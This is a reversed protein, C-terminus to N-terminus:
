FIEEAGEMDQAPVEVFDEPINESVDAYDNDNIDAYDDDASVDNINDQADKIIDDLLPNVQEMLDNVFETEFREPDEYYLMAESDYAFGTDYDPTYGTKDYANGESVDPECTWSNVAELDGSSRAGLKEDFNQKFGDMEFPNLGNDQHIAVGETVINLSDLLTGANGGEDVAENFATTVAENQMQEPINEIARRMDDSDGSESNIIDKLDNIDERYQEQESLDQTFDTMSDVTEDKDKGNDSTDADSMTDARRETEADIKDQVAEASDENEKENDAEDDEEATDPKEEETEMEDAEAAAGVDNKEDETEGSDTKDTDPNDDTEQKEMNDTETRDTEPIEKGTKDKDPNENDTMDQQETEGNEAAEDTVDNNGGYEDKEEDATSKDDTNTLTDTDEKEVSDSINDNISDNIIDKNKSDETELDATDETIDKNEGYGNKEEDATSKDDTDTLTDTNEKEVSDSMTDNTSDDNSGDKEDTEANEVDNENDTEAADKENEKDKDASDTADSDTSDKENETQSNDADDKEQEYIGYIDDPIFDSDTENVNKEVGDATENDTRDKEDEPKEVADETKEKGIFDEIATLINGIVRYAVENFVNTNLMDMAAIVIDAAYIKRDMLVQEERTLNGYPRFGPTVEGINYGLKKADILRSLEMAKTSFFRRGVNRYQTIQNDLKESLKDFHEKRKEMETPEKEEAVDENDTSSEAGSETDTADTEKEEKEVLDLRDAMGDRIVTALELEDKKYESLEIKEGDKDTGMYAEYEKFGDKYHELIYYKVPYFLNIDGQMTGDSQGMVMASSALIDEQKEETCYAAKLIETYINQVNKSDRGIEITGGEPNIYRLGTENRLVDMKNERYETSIKEVSSENSKEISDNLVSKFEDSKSLVSVGKLDDRLESMKGEVATFRDKDLEDKLCHTVGLSDIMNNIRPILGLAGHKVMVAQSAGAFAKETVEGNDSKEKTYSMIVMDSQHVAEVCDMKMDILENVYSDATEANGSGKEKRIEDGTKYEVLGAVENILSNVAKSGADLGNRDLADSIANKNDNVMVDIKTESNKTFPVADKLSMGEALGFNDDKIVAVCKMDPSVLYFDSKDWEYGNHKTNEFDTKGATMQVVSFGKIDPAALRSEDLGIKEMDIDRFSLNVPKVTDTGNEGTGVNWELRKGYSDGSFIDYEQGTSPNKFIEAFAEERKMNFVPPNGKKLSSGGM